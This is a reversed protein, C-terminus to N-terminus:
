GYSGYGGVPVGCMSFVNMKGIGLARAMYNLVLTKVFKSPRKRTVGRFYIHTVMVCLYTALSLLIIVGGVYLAFLSIVQIHLYFIM